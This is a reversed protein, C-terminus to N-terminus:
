SLAQSSPCRGVRLTNRRYALFASPRFQVLCKDDDSHQIVVCRVTLCSSAYAPLRQRSANLAGSSAPHPQSNVRDSSTPGRLKEVPSDSYDSGAVASKIYLDSQTALPLAHWRRSSPRSSSCPFGSCGCRLRALWPSPLHNILPVSGAYYDSCLFAPCMAFAALFRCLQSSPPVM